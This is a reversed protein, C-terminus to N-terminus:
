KKVGIKPRRTKSPRPRKLGKTMFEPIYAREAWALEDTMQRIEAPSCVAANLPDITMAHYIADRDKNMIGSVACEYVYMHAACLAAMQPPLKGFRMPNFGTNNTLVGVEVVGDAPLNSILGDNLVSGHFMKLRNFAHGEIIEGAYELGRNLDMKTIDKALERRRRDCDKRWGPWCDAYFSSGGRYKDRCYLRLTDKRKRFYPVYESLHGSSETVFAGFHFMIEFRVPDSEYVDKESRARKFIKPYLDRGKRKLETFWALHNNGGCRWQMQEYPVQAVTAMQRSSGQVSHCLGAVQASTSRVAALTMISMPNTYNMVLANPCMEEIDRLIALWAPVTRLAKFIGGPGITDGICQDIGYKLPIDNDFRVCKTGSVEICNIIYDTGKLVSTRDTTGIVSWRGGTLKDSLAQVLKITPGLRRKDIDVLCIDGGDLGPILMIDRMLGATFGSGAGLM